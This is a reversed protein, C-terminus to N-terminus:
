EIRSQRVRSRLVMFTNILWVAIVFVGSVILGIMLLNDLLDSGIRYWLDRPILVAFSLAIVVVANIMIPAIVNLVRHWKRIEPEQLMAIVSCIWLIHIGSFLCTNYMEGLGYLEFWNFGVGMVAVIGLLALAGVSTWAIIKNMKSYSQHHNEERPKQQILIPKGKMSWIYAVSLALIAAPRLWSLWTTVRFGAVKGVVMVRVFSVLMFVLLLAAVFAMLVGVIGMAKNDFSGETKQYTYQWLWASVWAIIAIHLWRYQWYFYYLGSMQIAGNFLCNYVAMGLTVVLIGIAQWQLSQSLKPLQHKNNYLSIGLIIMGVLMAVHPLYSFNSWGYLFSDIAPVQWAVMFMAYLSACVAMALSSQKITLKM